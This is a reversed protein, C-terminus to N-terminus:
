PMGNQALGGSDVQVEAALMPRNPTLGSAARRGAKNSEMTTKHSTASAARWRRPRSAASAVVSSSAPLRSNKAAAPVTIVSGDSINQTAKDEVPTKAHWAPRPL